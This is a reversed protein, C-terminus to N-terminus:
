ENMEFPLNVLQTFLTIFNIKRQKVASHAHKHPSTMAQPRLRHRTRMFMRMGCDFLSFYIKDREKCLEHIQGKFHVFLGL